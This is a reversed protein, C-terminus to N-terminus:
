FLIRVQHVKALRLSMDASGGAGLLTLYVKGNDVKRLVGSYGQGDFTILQVRKGAYNILESVAVYEIHPDQVAVPSVEAKAIGAEIAQERVKSNLWAFALPEVQKHNISLAPRLMALVDKAAYFQLGDWEMGETPNLELHLSQPDKLYDAYAALVSPDLAIRQNRLVQDVKEIATQLYQERDQALKGACYNQVKRQYQNSDLEVTVISLRPPNVILDGPKESMNALTMGIRMEAMDKTDSTLEFSLTQAGPKFRYSLEADTEFTRYGMELLERTGISSIKGCAVESVATFVSREAPQDYLQVMLPGHVDLALGKLSIAMQEPFKGEALREKFSLLEALGHFKLEASAVRVHDDLAPVRIEVNELGVRGDFSSTVRGYSIQMVPSLQKIADDMVARVSLWLSVKILLGIALIALLGWKFIKSMEVDM